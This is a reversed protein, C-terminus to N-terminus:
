GGLDFFVAEEGPVNGGTNFTADLNGSATFRAVLMDKDGFFSVGEGAVVISSGQLTLAHPFEATYGFGLNAFDAIALGNIGFTPDLLGASTVKLVGFYSNGNVDNVQGSAVISGDPEIAMGTFGGAFFSSAISGGAGFTPDLTGNTNYRSLIGQTIFTSSVGAVIYKGDSQIAVSNAVDSAVGSVTTLDTVTRGLNGFNADLTGASLLTRDELRELGEYGRSRVTRRTALRQSGRLRTVFQQLSNFFM